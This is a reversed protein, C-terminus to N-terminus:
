RVNHMYAIKMLCDGQKVTYEILKSENILKSKNQMEDKIVVFDYDAIEEQLNENFAYSRSKTSEHSDNDNM